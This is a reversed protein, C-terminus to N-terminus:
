KHMDNYAAVDLRRRDKDEATIVHMLFHLDHYDTLPVDYEYDFRNRFTLKEVFFWSDGFQKFDSETIPENLFEKVWIVSDHFVLGIVKDWGGADAVVARLGEITM